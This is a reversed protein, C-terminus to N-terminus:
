ACFPPKFLELVYNMINEFQDNVSVSKKPDLKWGRKYDQLLGSYDIYTDILEKNPLSDKHTILVRYADNIIQQNKRRYFIERGIPKKDIYTPTKPNPFPAIGDDNAPAKEIVGKEELKKLHYSVTAPHM